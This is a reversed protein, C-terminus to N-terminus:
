RQWAADAHAISGGITGRFRVQRDGVFPIAEVLLPILRAVNPSRELSRHRTLAGVALGGGDTGRMFNLDNLGNIDVLHAPRALRMNLLPMLSQGGALVKADDERLDELLGLAEDVSSPAHYVFPAPKM